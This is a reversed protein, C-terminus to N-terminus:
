SEDTITDTNSRDILSDLPSVTNIAVLPGDPQLEAVCDALLLEFPDDTSLANADVLRGLNREVIYTAAKLRVSENPSYAATHAISQAALPLNEKFIRKAQMEPTEGYLPAEEVLSELAQDPDWQKM